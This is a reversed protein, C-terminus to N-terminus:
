QHITGPRARYLLIWLLHEIKKSECEAGLFSLPNRGGRMRGLDTKELRLVDGVHGSSLQRGRGQTPRARRKIKRGRGRQDLDTALFGGVEAFQELSQAGAGVGADKLVGELRQALM